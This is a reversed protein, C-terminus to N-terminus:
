KKTSMLANVIEEEYWKNAARDYLGMWWLGTTNYENFKGALYNAYKLREAMDPHTGIAGFEGFFYPVGLENCKKDVRSFVADIVAKQDTDFINIYYQKDDGSSDNCFWYPDYSHFTACLHNPHVDSPVQLESVPTDDNGTDSYTSFLLNRYENNGGTARVVDVFDQQLKTITAYAVNGASPATWSSQKNLIENFSEFIVKEGYDKFRTAIQQWLNKYIPAVEDYDDDAHLWASHPDGSGNNAGADHQVNIIVYCGANLVYNVVEEVRAMWAEDITYDAGDFDKMHPYWTVPVRIVKFGKAAISDIIAQTTKPQGWQTEWSDPGTPHFWSGYPNSELTNGLNYGLYLHEVMDYASEFPDGPDTNSGKQTIAIQKSLSGATVTLTSSRQEGTNKKVSLKVYAKTNTASTDAIAWGYGAHPTVSVWATDADPVSVTWDGDSVIGLMQSNASLQFELSSVSVGDKTVDLSTAPATANDDDSCGQTLLAMTFLLMFGFINKIKM